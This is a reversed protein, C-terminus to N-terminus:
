TISCWCRAPHSTTLRRATPRRLRAHSPLREFYRVLDYGAVGVLGGHLPFGNGAAVPHPAAALARRLSALLEAQDTPRPLREQGLM